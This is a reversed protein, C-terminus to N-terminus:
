HPGNAPHPHDSQSNARQGKARAVRFAIWSGDAELHGDSDAQHKRGSIKSTDSIPRRRFVVSVRGFSVDKRVAQRERDVGAQSGATEEQARRQLVPEKKPAAAQTTPRALVGGRRPGEIVASYDLSETPDAHASRRDGTPM